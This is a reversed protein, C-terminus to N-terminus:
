GNLDRKRIQVGDIFIALNSEQVRRSCLVQEVVQRKYQKKWKTFDTPFFNADYAWLRLEDDTTNIDDVVLNDQYPKDGVEFGAAFKALIEAKTM